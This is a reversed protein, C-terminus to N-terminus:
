SLCVGTRSYSRICCCVSLSIFVQRRTRTNPILKTRNGVLLILEPLQPVDQLAFHKPSQDYNQTEAHHTYIGSYIREYAM